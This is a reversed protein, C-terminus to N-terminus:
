QGLDSVSRDTQWAGNTLTDPAPSSDATYGPVKWVMLTAADAHGSCVAVVGVPGGAADVSVGMVATTAPSCATLVCAFALPLILGPRM